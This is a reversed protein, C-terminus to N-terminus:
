IPISCNEGSRFQETCRDEVGLIEAVTLAVSRDLDQIREQRSTWRLATDMPHGHQGSVYAEPRERVSPIASEKRSASLLFRGSTVTM